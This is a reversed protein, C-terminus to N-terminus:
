SSHTKRGCSVKGGVKTELGAAFGSTSDTHTEDAITMQPYIPWSVTPFFFPPFFRKLMMEQEQRRPVSPLWLDHYFPHTGHFICRCRLGTLLLLVLYSRVCVQVDRVWMCTYESLFTHTHSYCNYMYTVTYYSIYLHQTHFSKENFGLYLLPIWFALLSAFNRLKVTFYVHQQQM